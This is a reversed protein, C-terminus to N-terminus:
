VRITVKEECKSALYTDAVDFVEANKINLPANTLHELSFTFTLFAKSSAILYKKYFTTARPLGLYLYIVELCRQMKNNFGPLSNDIISNNINDSGMM